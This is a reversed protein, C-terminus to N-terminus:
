LHSMKFLLVGMEIGETGKNCYQTKERLFFFPSTVWQTTKCAKHNVPNREPFVASSLTQGM